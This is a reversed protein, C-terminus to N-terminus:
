HKHKMPWQPCLFDLSSTFPIYGCVCVVSVPRFALTDTPYALFRREALRLEGELALMRHRRTEEDDRLRKEEEMM